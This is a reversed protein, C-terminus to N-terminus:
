ELEQQGVSMHAAEGQIVYKMTYIALIPIRTYTTDESYNILINAGSANSLAENYCEKIDELKLVPTVLWTTKHVEAKVPGLAKINSNPYAFQSNPNFHGVTYSCGTTGVLALAIGAVLVKFYRTM